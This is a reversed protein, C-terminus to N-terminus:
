FLCVFFFFGVRDIFLLAWGFMLNTAYKCIHDYAVTNITEHLFFHFINFPLFSMKVSFRSHLLCLIRHMIGSKVGFHDHSVFIGSSQKMYSCGFM